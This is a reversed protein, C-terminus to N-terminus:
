LLKHVVHVTLMREDAESQCVGAVVGLANVEEIECYTDTM